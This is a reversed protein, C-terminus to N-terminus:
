ALVKPLQVERKANISHEQSKIMSQGEIILWQRTLFVFTKTKLASLIEKNLSLSKFDVSLSCYFAISCHQVVFGDWRGGM